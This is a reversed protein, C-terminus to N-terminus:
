EPTPEAVARRNLMVLTGAVLYLAAFWAITRTLLLYALHYYSQLEWRRTAQIGGIVLATVIVLLLVPLSDRSRVPEADVSQPDRALLGQWWFALVALGFVSSLYQLFHSVQMEWGLVSISASLASVHQVIWGTSHTFSDWVIHTWTGVLISFLAILWQWPRGAFRELSRRCVWRARPGLLATLPEKLLITLVLLALGLPLCVAFSGYWTHTDNLMRGLRAPFYYPVDPVLSGIILPVTQLFGFRRLPLVAAPHALTFPMVATLTAPWLGLRL